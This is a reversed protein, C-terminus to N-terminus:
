FLSSDSKSPSDVRTSTETRTWDDDSSYSYPRSANFSGSSEGSIDMNYDAYEGFWFQAQSGAGTGLESDFILNNGDGKIALNPSGTRTRHGSDSDFVQYAQLGLSLWGTLNRDFVDAMTRPAPVTSVKEVLMATIIGGMIKEADTSYANRQHLGILANTQQQMAQYHTELNESTFFSKEELVAGDKDLVYRTKGGCGVLTMALLVALMVSVGRMWNM